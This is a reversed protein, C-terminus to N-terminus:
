QILGADKASRIRRSATAKPLGTDALIAQLPPQNNELATNYVDAIHQLEDPTVRKVYARTKKRDRPTPASM